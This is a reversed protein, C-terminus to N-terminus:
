NNWRCKNISKFLCKGDNKFERLFFFFFISLFEFRKSVHFNFLFSSLRFSILYLYIFPFYTYLKYCSIVNLVYLFNAIFELFCSSFVTVVTMFFTCELCFFCFFLLLFFFGLKKSPGSWEWQKYVLFCGLFEKKTM